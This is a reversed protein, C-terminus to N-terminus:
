RSEAAGPVLDLAALQTPDAVVEIGIIRDTVIFSLALRVQGDVVVLAGPAGDVYAPTAGQARGNFFGAIVASGRAEPTSGMTAAVPDAHMVVHPDLLSVLDDFRGERSAALFAEVVQRQRTRDTEPAASDRQVRRRARSAIQRVAAPSRDVVAAIEDFSVAFMDHLVFVFRETPALTDLVVLLARGVSETLVAEREPDVSEAPDGGGAGAPEPGATDWPQEPRVARARLRDLCVRGVTTTLWGPLNDIADVDARSLRLWTDQVADEAEADSGLMRQAVAGLRSRNEEFRRALLDTDRM